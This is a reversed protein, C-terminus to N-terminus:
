GFISEFSASILGARKTNFFNERFCAIVHYAQEDGTKLLVQSAYGLVAWRINEPEDTMKTLIDSVFSWSKKKILARCLDIAQKEEEEKQDMAAKQADENLQSIKELQVLLTRASGYSTDILSDRIDDSLKIKEKRCVRKVLIALQKDTL